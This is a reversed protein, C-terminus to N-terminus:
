FLRLCITHGGVRMYNKEDLPLRYAGRGRELKNLKHLFLDFGHDGLARQLGTLGVFKHDLEIKFTSNIKKIDM